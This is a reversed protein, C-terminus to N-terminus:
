ILACGRGELPALLPQVQLTVGINAPIGLLPSLILTATHGTSERPGRFNAFNCRFQLTRPSGWCLLCFTAVYNRGEPPGLIPHFQLTVRTNEPIGPLPSLILLPQM